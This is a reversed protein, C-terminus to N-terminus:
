ATFASDIPVTGERYTGKKRPDPREANEEQVGAPQKVHVKIDIYFKDHVTGPSEFSRFWKNKVSQIMQAPKLFENQVVSLQLSM